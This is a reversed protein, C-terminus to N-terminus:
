YNLSDYAQRGGQLQLSVQNPACIAVAGPRSLWGQLVCYQKPGPDAAVRARGPQVEILTDGLPGAVRMQAPRDLPLEAVQTGAARVIVSRAQDGRWLLRASLLVVAVGLLIILWDGPRVLAFWARASILRARM